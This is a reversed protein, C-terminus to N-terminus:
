SQRLAGMPDVRSARLAPVCAAGLAIVVVLVAVGGYTLPDIAATAFLLQGMVRSLAAACAMGLLLGATVIGIGQRLILGLAQGPTGGLALRIGIEHTRQTVLGAMMGYLGVVALVLAIGAFLSLLLMDFRQRALARDVRDHMTMVDSVPQDPDVARVAGRVVSVLAEPTRDARAVVYMPRQPWQLYPKYIQGEGEDQPGANRVHAVVGVITGIDLRKGIPNEGAWFQRALLDDIIVVEPSGAIDADTFDRGQRLAIGLTRFYGPMTVALEAHPEPRGQVAEEGVIEFSGSWGKGSMPLPYVASAERVGPAAALQDLLRRHFAAQKSVSDYRAAPLSVSMTIIDDGGFGPDVRNLASFSRALLGALVLVTFAMAVEVVVLVARFRRHGAGATNARGGSRLAGGPASRSQYLAPALGFALGALLSIVVTFFLPAGAVTVGDLRPINGPDLRALVRVAAWSLLMGLGGGTLSLVMCETMLQRALRARGAGLASRVALERQRAAGRSLLLNAVNVCAILLVLAVAGGLILLAPRVDGTMEELLPTGALQWRPAEFYRDPFRERFDASLADLDASARALTAGPRLRAIVGLFQNGRGMERSQEWSRPVWLDAPQNLFGIPAEPFTVKPPMVGIVQRQRGDIVIERGIISPDAGFRRNWLGHSLMVVGADTGDGDSETFGRGLAPTAGLLGFMDPSVVYALLEEPEGGGTLNMARRTLAAVRDFTRDRELIDAFEAPSIAARELGEYRNWVVIARDAEAYPLPRLLVAQLVSFIAANLGIGVALTVLAATTFLPSSRLLRVAFGADHWLERRLEARRMDGEMGHGIRRCETRVHEANGFRALAADQAAARSLGEAMYRRTQMELHFAIEEEM